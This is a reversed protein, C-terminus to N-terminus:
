ELLKQFPKILFFPRAKTQTDAGMINLEFLFFFSYVFFFVFNDIRKHRCFCFRQPFEISYKENCILQFIDVQKKKKACKEEVAPRRASVGFLVCLTMITGVTAVNKQNVVLVTTGDVINDDNSSSLDEAELADMLLIHINWKRKLKEQSLKILFNKKCCKTPQKAISDIADQNLESTPSLAAPSSPSYADLENQPPKTAPLDLSLQVQTLHNSYDMSVRPSFITESLLVVEGFFDSPLAMSLLCAM